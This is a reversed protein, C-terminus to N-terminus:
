RWQVDKAGFEHPFSVLRNEHIYYRVGNFVCVIDLSSFDDLQKNTPNRNTSDPHRFFYFLEKIKKTLEYFSSFEGVNLTSTISINKFKVETMGLDISCWYIYIFRPLSHLQYTNQKQIYYDTGAAM